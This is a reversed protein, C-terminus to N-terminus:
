METIANKIEAQNIKLDKIEATSSVSMDEINKELGALIRIITAKFQPDLM